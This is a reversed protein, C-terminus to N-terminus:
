MVKECNDMHTHKFIRASPIHMCCQDCRPLPEPGEQMIAVKLKWRRYMFRDQLKRLTKEKALCGGGPCEVSKLIHPFSVKYTETGGVRIYVGRIHTLVIGHSIEMHNWLSFEIM